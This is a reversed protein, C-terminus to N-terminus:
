AAGVHDPFVAKSVNPISLSSLGFEAAIGLERLGLFDEGIDDMFQGRPAYYIDANCGISAFLCLAYMVFASEEEGDDENAFLADATFEKYVESIGKELEGLRNGRRRINSSPVAARSSPICSSKWHFVYTRENLPM